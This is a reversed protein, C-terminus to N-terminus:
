VVVGFMDYVEARVLEGYGVAQVSPVASTRQAYVKLRLRENKRALVHQARCRFAGRTEALWRRSTAALRIKRMAATLPSEV